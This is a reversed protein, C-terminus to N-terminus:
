LICRVALEISTTTGYPSAHASNVVVAVLDYGAAMLAKADGITVATGAERFELLGDTLVFVQVQLDAMSVGSSEVTFHISAGSGLGPYRLNVRYLKASLDPYSFTFNKVTDGVGAVAFVDDSGIAQLFTDAKVGCLEGAIYRRFFEPFWFQEPEPVSALLADVGNPQNLVEHFAATVTTPGGYSEALHKMLPVWGIGHDSM